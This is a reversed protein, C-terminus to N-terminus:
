AALREVQAPHPLPVDGHQMYHKYAETVAVPDGVMQVVGKHIWLVKTCVDCLTPLDHSAMVLIKAKGILETMRRRAKDQFGIDGAPFIEDIILVEPEIETAVSFVLRVLMGSSYYRVPIDMLDGLESFEAILKQKRKVDGPTQGQLYSLYAINEWGNAEAEVGVGLDLMSYADGVVTCSGSTPTYIGTLLKLLTSKGSGNSGVIGFRDGEEVRFSVNRLATVASVPKTVHKRLIAKLVFEKLSMHKNQWVQFTLTVDDLEIAAM